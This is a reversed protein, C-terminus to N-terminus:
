LFVFFEGDVVLNFEFFHVEDESEWFVVLEADVGLDVDSLHVEDDIIFHGSVVILLTFSLARSYIFFVKNMNRM